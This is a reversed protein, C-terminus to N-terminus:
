IDFEGDLAGLKFAEWEAPTFALAVSSDSQRLFYLGDRFEVVVRADSTARAGKAVEVCGSSECYSSKEFKLM